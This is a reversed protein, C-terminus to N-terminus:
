AALDKAKDLGRCTIRLETEARYRRIKLRKMEMMMAQYHPKLFRLMRDAERYEAAMQAARHRLNDRTM